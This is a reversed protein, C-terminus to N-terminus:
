NGKGRRRPQRRQDTARRCSICQRGGNPKIYVNGGDFLHGNKCYGTKLVHSSPCFSRRKNEIPLVWELHDPNVCVRNRCLHDPELGSPCPGVLLEWVMRHAHTTSANISFLGYGSPYCGATWEWCDGSADIKQLCRQGLSLLRGSYKDGPTWMPLDDLFTISDITTM